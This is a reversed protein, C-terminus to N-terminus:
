REVLGARLRGIDRVSVDRPEAENGASLGVGAAGQRQRMPDFKRRAVRRQM